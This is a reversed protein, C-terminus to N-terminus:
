PNRLEKKAHDEAAEGVKEVKAKLTAIAGAIADASLGDAQADRIIRALADDAVDRAADVRQALERRTTERAKDSAEGVTDDELRTRPLALALGIGIAAGLVGVALPRRDLYDQTLDRADRLNDVVERAASRSTDDVVEGASRLRSRVVRSMRNAALATRDGARSLGQAVREGADGLADSADIVSAGLTRGAAGAEEAVTEATAAAGRRTASLGDAAREAMDQATHRAGAAFRGSRDGVASHASQTGDDAEYTRTALSTDMTGVGVPVYIVTPAQAAYKPTSTGSRGGLLSTRAGGAFMWAAGMAILAASSPNDRAARLLQEGFGPERVVVETDTSHAAIPTTEIAM